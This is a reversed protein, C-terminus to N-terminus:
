VILLLIEGLHRPPQCFKRMKRYIIKLYGMLRYGQRDPPCELLKIVGARVVVLVEVSSLSTFLNGDFDGTAQVSPTVASSQPPWQFIFQVVSFYGSM